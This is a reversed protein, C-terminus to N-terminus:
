TIIIPPTSPLIPAGDAAYLMMICYTTAHYADKFDARFNTVVHRSTRVGRGTRWSYFAQIAERGVLPENGGQFVGDETYCASVGVGGNLDVEYWYDAMNM